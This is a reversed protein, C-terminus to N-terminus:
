AAPERECHVSGIEFSFRSATPALIAAVGTAPNPVDWVIRMAWKKAAIAVTVVTLVIPLIWAVPM